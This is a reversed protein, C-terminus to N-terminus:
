HTSFVRIFTGEQIPFWHAVKVFTEMVSKSMCLPEEGFLRQYLPTIFYEFIVDTMGKYTTDWFVKYHHHM